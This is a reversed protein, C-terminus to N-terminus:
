ESQEERSVEIKESPADEEKREPAAKPDEGHAGSKIPDETQAKPM